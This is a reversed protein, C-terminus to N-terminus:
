QIEKENGGGLQNSALDVSSLGSHKIVWPNDSPLGGIDRTDGILLNALKTRKKTKKGSIQGNLSTRIIRLSSNSSAECADDRELGRGTIKPMGLNRSSIELLRVRPAM